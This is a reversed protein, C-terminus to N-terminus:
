DTGPRGSEAAGHNSDGKWYVPIPNLLISDSAEVWRDFMNNPLAVTAAGSKQQEILSAFPMVDRLLTVKVQVFRPVATWRTHITPIAVHLLAAATLVRKEGPSITILHPMQTGPPIESGVSLTVTLSELDFDTDVIKDAVAIVGKSLNQIQYTVAIPSNPALVDQTLEADVRVDGERGLARRPDSFDVHAAAAVTAGLLSVAVAAFFTKSSKM